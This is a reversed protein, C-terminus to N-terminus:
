LLPHPVPANVASGEPCGDTVSTKSNIHTSVGGSNGPCDPCCWNRGSVLLTEQSLDGNVGAVEQM